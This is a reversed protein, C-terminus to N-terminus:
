AAKKALVVAFIDGVTEAAKLDNGTMTVGYEIDCMLIVGLAALSDWEPLSDLRTAPTVEVADQFDVASLFHEAFQTADKDVESTTASM